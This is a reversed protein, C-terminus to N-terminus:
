GIILFYEDLHDAWESKVIPDVEGWLIHTPREISEVPQTGERVLRRRAGNVAIYWDFERRSLRGTM